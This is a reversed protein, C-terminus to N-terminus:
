RAKAPKRAAKPPQPPKPAAFDIKKANAANVAAFAEAAIVPDLKWNSFEVDHRLMLPDGRFVARMRRPLKDQAGIWIQMFVTDSAVAIMDTTTGGVVKSQGIYFAKSLGDAINGFPDAGVIDAFPFYIAAKDFAAKLMADITPPADTVAVLNEAPAFATITKGDYSYEAAPGDGLTIVRLKNPRQLLVESTTSYALAPGVSSPSEYTVVATFAMSQAATLASSMDKLLAMARADLQPSAKTASRASPTATKGTAPTQASAGAGFALGAAFLVALAITRHPNM